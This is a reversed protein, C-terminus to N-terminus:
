NKLFCNTTAKLSTMIEQATLVPPISQEFKEKVDQPLRDIERFHSVVLGHRLGALRLGRNRVEELNHKARWLQNRQISVVAQIIYHWVSSLQLGILLPDEIKREGWSKQLRTEIIGTRDHIVKWREKKAILENLSVVGFDVELCGPLLFGALFNNKNYEVEFYNVPTLVKQITQKWYEFVEQTSHQLNVVAVLDIDSFEDFYGVAASGVLVIGEIRNDAKLLNILKRSVEFRDHETFL